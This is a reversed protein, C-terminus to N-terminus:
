REYFQAFACTSTATLNATAAYPMGYLWRLQGLRLAGDLASDLSSLLTSLHIPPAAPSDAFFRVRGCLVGATPAAATATAPTAPAAFASPKTAPAKAASISVLVRTPHRRHVYHPM